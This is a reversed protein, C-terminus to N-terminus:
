RRRAPAAAWTWSTPRAPATTSSSTWPPWPWAPATSWAASTATWSSTTSGSGPPRSRRRPRRPETACAQIEPHRFLANDDFAIKADLATLEGQATVVLPNIEVMSCDKELFLRYLNRLFAAAQKVAEGPLGLAAALERAQYGALGVCPDVVVKVIKEPTRAAVEEIEVGGESSALFAM